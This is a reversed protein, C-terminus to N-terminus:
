NTTFFPVVLIFGIILYFLLYSIFSVKCLWYIPFIGCISDAFFDFCSFAGFVCWYTLWLTDDNKDNTKVAKISRYSPYGAGIANCVLQAASGAILYLALIGSIGYVLFERKQNTIEEFKTLISKLTPDQTNYLSKVFNDHEQKFDFSSRTEPAGRLSTQAQEATNTTESM